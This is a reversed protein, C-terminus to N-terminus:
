CIPTDRVVLLEQTATNSLSVSLELLLDASHRESSHARKELDM